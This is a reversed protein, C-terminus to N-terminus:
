PNNSHQNRADNERKILEDLIPKVYRDYFLGMDLPTNREFIWDVVKAPTDPMTKMPCFQNPCYNIDFEGNNTAQPRFYCDKCRDTRHELYTKGLSILALSWVKMQSPNTVDVGAEKLKKYFEEKTM